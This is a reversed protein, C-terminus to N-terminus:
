KPISTLNLSKTKGVLLMDELRIGFQGPLYIGPEVTIISNAQLPKPYKASLNPTEHIDLGIGHGGSHSYFEKYGAQDILDRSLADAEAGSLGAKIKKLGNEQAQLVLNYVEQQKKTPKATFIMRTMDSCYGQYKMGMDILILDGKRLKRDTPAHHVIASNDGFGVIPDFSLEEAGFKYGLERIKWAIDKESLHKRSFLGLHKKIIKQVELFTKENIAQSKKILVIERASKIERQAEIQGSIDTFRVRPSIKKFQKYQSVTLNSDEAGLTQLRHKKLTAQWNEKSFEIVKFDKKITKQARLIYRSDTFLYKQKPTLLLFGNSGTFNSLYAINTKNTILM